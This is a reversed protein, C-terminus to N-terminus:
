FLERIQIESANVFGQVMAPKGGGRATFAQRLLTAAERADVPASGIIYRYGDQDNGIFIGAYRGAKSTLANVAEQAPKQDINEEFFLISENTPEAREVKELLSLTQMQRLKLSLAAKEDRMRTVLGFVEEPSTTLYRSLDTLLAHEKDFLEMARFGCLINVRIGSKWKQVGLVKLCGIEGTQRVHPACCACADVGPFTVVRVDDALELKSRYFTTKAAEGTLFSVESSINKTIAANAEKEVWLLQEMSLMGNYDLTVERNSCHFGVNELGFFRHVIGSFLHEVSHQQMNSFRHPWDIEGSVLCGPSLAKANQEGGDGFDLYHHIEGDRIQVDLVRFGALTGRDPSQGGEEPFFLSQDLVVDSGSVALIRGSFVTQYADEYYLRKTRVNSADQM